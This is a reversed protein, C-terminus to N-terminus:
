STKLNKADSTQIKLAEIHELAAISLSSHYNCESEFEAFYCDAFSNTKFDKLFEPFNTIDLSWRWLKIEQPEGLNQYVTDEGCFFCM